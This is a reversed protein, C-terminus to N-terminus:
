AASGTLTPRSLAMVRQRAQLKNLLEAPDNAQVTIPGTFNTSSDVRTAYITHGRGTAVVNRGGMISGMVDAMYDAGRANLPIVAEDGKEGVGITHPTTFVAGDGYWGFNQEHALAGRPDGYREKIYRLGAVTQKWPDSTKHAGYSAWTSDLFQFMGYATSTPNQALNNFGSERMIVDRLASWENGWGMQNAARHVMQENGLNGSPQTINMGSTGAMGNPVGYRHILHQIRNRAFRNLVYSIDGPWLPHMGRMDNAAREPGPYRDKLVQDILAKRAERPSMAAQQAGSGTVGPGNYTGRGARGGVFEWPNGDNDGFHLHPGTSNGTNGSEGIAEGGRVFTGAGYGRKSLHAYLVEPGMDTKLYMVRGYSRYGDQPGPRRPEYGRIDYSQTIRGSDVAFITSGVPVGLDLAPYGTYSDHIGQVIVFNDVPKFVGGQAFHLQNGTDIGYRADHNMKEVAKEGGVARTWEPRMVAEGGGVAITHTDRGPSWGPVVGGEARGLTSFWGPTGPAMSPGEPALPTSTPGKSSTSGGINKPVKYEFGFLASLDKMIKEAVPNVSKSLSDFTDLVAKAQKQANGSLETTGRVLISHLSGSIENSADALDQAAREMTTHYQTEQRDMSRQFDQAQQHEMLTFDQMQQHMNRQFDDHSLQMQRDFDQKNRSLSLNLSRRAEAFDANASDTYLKRAAQQRQGAVQNFQTVIQRDAKVETVFRALQQANSPDALNLQQIVQDNFGLKRLENLNQEQARMDRLQDEMNFLTWQASATAQVPTRQFPNWQTTAMQKAALEEQHHFDELARSRQLNFDYESRRRQRNYDAEARDRQLNFQYEQRNRQINYDTQAYQVQLNYDEASRQRQKDYQQQMLLMQKIYQVQDVIASTTAQQVQQVQQQGAQTTPPGASMVAQLQGVQAQFAQARTMMSMQIQLGQQAMQAIAAQQEYERRNETGVIKQAKATSALIDNFSMGQQRLKDFAETTGQYFSKVDEQFRVSRRGAETGLVAEGTPTTRLRQWLAAQGGPGQVAGPTVLTKTLQQWAQDGQTTGRAKWAQILDTTSINFKDMTPQLRAFVKNLKDQDAQRSLDLKGLRDGQSTSITSLASVLAQTNSQATTAAEARAKLPDHGTFLEELGGKLQGYTQGPSQLGLGYKAILPLHEGERALFGGIGPIKTTIGTPQGTMTQQLDQHTKMLGQAAVYQDTFTGSKLAQQYASVQDNFAKHQQYVDMALGIGAGAAATWPSGMSLGMAGFSLAQNQIGMMGQAAMIGMGALAPAAPTRLFQRAGYGVGGAIAGGGAMGLQLLSKNLKQFGASTKGMENTSYNRAEAEAALSAKAEQANTLRVKTEEQMAKISAVRADREEDTAGATGGEKLPATSVEELATQLGALRSQAAEEERMATGMRWRTRLNALPGTPAAWTTRKTPDYPHRMADFQPTVFQSIGAGALGAAWSAFSQSEEPPVWGPQARMRAAYYRERMAGALTGTGTVTGRVGGGAFAGINYMGRQIWTSRGEALKQGTEGLPAGAARYGGGEAEAITGGGKLGEILGRVPSSRLLMFASAVKTLTGALLVLGGVMATIPAVVGMILALFQGLPGSVVDKLVESFKVLGQAMKDMVPAFNKGMAEATMQMNQRFKSMEDGLSQQAAKAGEAAAGSEKGVQALGLAERVGGAQNVVATIARISRPGDLGLRNLETAAKPGERQLQELIQVLAEGKDMKRFQESTKGIIDAYQAIDPSGSQMAYSIDSTIKTFVNAATYGDQGARAFATSFGALQTSNLGIQRGVPALQATFDVLSQASTNTQAALYTFQDAYERTTKANIPTGMLKQLGTLSTALSDASEGTAHSMDEFVKSLDTLGRTQHIDTIKSLVQVLSTAEGTTAGYSSRLTNVANTYDGMVRKQDMTNKTLIASQANLLSVQKEYSSWAATAATITGVDAASIGILTKGAMKTLSSIKTSVTDISQGLQSTAQSSTQMSQDYQSNDATLVVNAEVPQATM